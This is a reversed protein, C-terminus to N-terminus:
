GGNEVFNLLIQIDGEEPDFDHHWKILKYKNLPENKRIAEGFDMIMSDELSADTLWLKLNNMFKVILQNEKEHLWGLYCDHGTAVIKGNGVM